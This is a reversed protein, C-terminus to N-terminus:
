FFVAVSNKEDWRSDKVMSWLVEGDGCTKLVTNDTQSMLSQIQRVSCKNNLTAEFAVWQSFSYKPTLPQNKSLSHM